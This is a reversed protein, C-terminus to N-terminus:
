TEGVHQVLVIRNSNKVYDYMTYYFSELTVSPISYPPVRTTYFPLMQTQLPPVVQKDIVSLKHELSCM